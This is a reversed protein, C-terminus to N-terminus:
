AGPPSLIEVVWRIRRRGKFACHLRPRTLKDAPDNMRQPPSPAAKRKGHGLVLTKGVSTSKLKVSPVRFTADFPLFKAAGLLVHGKRGAISARWGCWEFRLAKTVARFHQWVVM